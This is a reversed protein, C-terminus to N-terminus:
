GWAVPGSGSSNTNNRAQVAYAQLTVTLSQCDPKDDKDGDGNQQSQDDGQGDENENSGSRSPSCTVTITDTFGGSAPGSGVIQHTGMTFTQSPTSGTISLGSTNSGSATIDLWVWASLSGTYSIQYTCSSPPSATAGLTCQDGAASSSTLTVTGAAFTQVQGAATSSFLALSSSISLSALFGLAVLGSLTLPRRGGLIM